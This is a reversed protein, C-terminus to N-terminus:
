GALSKSKYWNGIVESTTSNSAENLVDIIVRATGLADVAGNVTINNTVTNTGNGTPPIINASSGNYYEPAPMLNASSGNYYEPKMEAIAAAAALRYSLIDAQLDFYAATVEQLKAVEAASANGSEMKYSLIDAQADQFAANQEMLALALSEAGALAEAFPNGASPIAAISAALKANADQIEKLKKELETVKDVQEKEIALMLQLRTREEESINGKLAAVIQIQKLDFISGAQKLKLADQAAKLQKKQSAALASAAKKAADAALKDAKAKAAAALAQTNINQNSGGTMPVNGMGQFGKLQQSLEKFRQPSLAGLRGAIAGFIGKVIGAGPITGIENKLYTIGDIFNALSKGAGEIDKALASFGDGNNLDTIAGVLSKGIMEQANNAAITIKDLGGAYTNASTTAAGASVVNIQALIDEFSYAALQAKTLGTQYKVLGRTQGAFAKGIDASTTALDQGSMSSLNLSTVLLEQAKKWDGTVTVLKQYAPRLKDDVVGFQTELNSIFAAISPNAYALGLNDITKALIQAAKDDAAFAKVSAVGYQAIARAGFAVGFTKALSKVTSNLKSASSEAQKFAKRGTFEAAIDIFVNSM